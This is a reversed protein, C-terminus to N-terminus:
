FDLLDDLSLVMKNEPEPEPIVEPKTYEIKAREAAEKEVSGCLNITMVMNLTAGPFYFQVARKFVELDSISNGIGNAIFDICETFTKKSQFIAQDFEPEQECFNQLAEATPESIVKGKQNKGDYTFYEKKM